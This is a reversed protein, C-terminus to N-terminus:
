EPCEEAVFVEILESEASVTKIGVAVVTRTRYSLTYTEEDYEIDTVVGFEVPVQDVDRDYEDVDQVGPTAALVKADGRVHTMAEIAAFDL